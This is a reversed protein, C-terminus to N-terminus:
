SLKVDLQHSPFYTKNSILNLYLYGMCQANRPTPSKKLEGDNPKFGDNRCVDMIEM